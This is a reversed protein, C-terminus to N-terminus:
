DVGEKESGSEDPEVETSQNEVTYVSEYLIEESTEESHKRLFAQICKEFYAVGDENELSYGIKELEWSYEPVTNKKLFTGSGKALINISEEELDREIAIARFHTSGSILIQNEYRIASSSLLYIVEATGKDGFVYAYEYPSSGDATYYIDANEADTIIEIETEEQILGPNPSFYIRKPPIVDVTVSLVETTPTSGGGSSGGSMPMEKLVTDNDVDSHVYNKSPSFGGGPYGDQWLYAYQFNWDSIENDVVARSVGPRSYWFPYLEIGGNKDFHSELGASKNTYFGVVPYGYETGIRNFLAVTQLNDSNAASFSNSFESEMDLWIGLSTTAPSIGFDNLWGFCERFIAELADWSGTSDKSSYCAFYFGVPIQFSLAAELNRSVEPDKNSGTNGIKILVGGTSSDQVISNIQAATQWRSVDYIYRDTYFPQSPILNDAPGYDISGSDLSIYNWNNAAVADDMNWGSPLTSEDFTDIPDESIRNTSTPNSLVVQYHLHAGSSSGTNGIKGVSDGQKVRDGASVSIDSLHMFLHWRDFSGITDEKVIVWNGASSSYQALTVEGTVPCRAPIVGSLGRSSIDWAHHNPDFSSSWGQSPVTDEGSPGVLGIQFFRPLSMQNGQTDRLVVKRGNYENSM